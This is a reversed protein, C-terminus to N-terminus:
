KVVLVSIGAHAVVQQAVSGVLFRELNSKGKHGVVILDANWEGALAVISEAPSISQEVRTLVTIGAALAKNAAEEVVNVAETKLKENIGAPLDDMLPAVSLICLEAGDAKAAGIAKELVRAAYPSADIAVIIKM